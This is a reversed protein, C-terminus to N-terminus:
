LMCKDPVRRDALMILRLAASHIYARAIPCRVGMAEDHAAVADM